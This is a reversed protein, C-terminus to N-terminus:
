RDTDFWPKIKKKTAEDNVAHMYFIPLQTPLLANWKRSNYTLFISGACHKEVAPIELKNLAFYEQASTWPDSDKDRSHKRSAILLAQQIDMPIQDHTSKGKMQEPNIEGTIDSMNVTESDMSDMIRLMAGRVSDFYAQIRQEEYGNLVAHTDTFIVKLTTSKGYDPRDTDALNINHIKKRFSRLFRLAAHEPEAAEDWEGKGWYMSFPIPRNDAVCTEVIDRIRPDPKESKFKWTNFSSLVAEAASQPVEQM